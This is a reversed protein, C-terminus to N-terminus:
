QIVRKSGITTDRRSAHQRWSIAIGSAM